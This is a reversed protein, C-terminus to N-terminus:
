QGKGGHVTGLIVSCTVDFDVLNETLISFKQIFEM